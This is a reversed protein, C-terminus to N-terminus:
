QAVAAAAPVAGATPADHVGQSLVWAVALRARDRGIVPEWAPMTGSRGINIATRIADIDGSGHLWIDDTLNPAGIVISGKGDAGHCAACIVEFKPKGAFALRADHDRGSLGLVYNAVEDVGGDPLAGALPPMVGHRGGLVSALVKDPDGGYLWDRDVLNPYGTAGRADSGHCAACNNAFVNRGVKVAKPDSALDALPKDRFGAYLSELKANAEATDRAAAGASTWGLSGAFNGFGPYLVLYGIAFLVTLVFLGFWWRPLPHNLETLDEDWVHGTTAGKVDDGPRRRATALLLWVVGVINITTLVIIYWSWFSSM